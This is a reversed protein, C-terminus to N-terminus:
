HCSDSGEDRFSGGAVPAFRWGYGGERLTLLLVGYTRDNRAESNPFNRALPTHNAGGTGVVFERIGTENDREGGPTQPAFREYIHDHGNLVVDAGAAHLQEWFTRYAAEARGGSSFLPVHWYALTCRHRNRALDEALWRGQPTRSSCGGAASCQSNLAILHWSGVDYSYYGRDRDGAAPGFYDFYGRAGANGSDCGTTPYTSSGHTLYEHNGPVPRTIARLRGWSPDYSREFAELSGCYYANDGLPLVAALGAGALLDSVARQACAWGTGRGDHFQPMAPDCAIDGAAAIVPAGGAAAPAAAGGAPGAGGALAAAGAAAALAVLLARAGWRALISRISANLPDEECPRM